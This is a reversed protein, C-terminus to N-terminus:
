RRVRDLLISTDSKIQAIDRKLNEIDRPHMEEWVCTVPAVASRVTEKTNQGNLKGKVLVGLFGAILMLLVTQFVGVREILVPLIDILNEVM